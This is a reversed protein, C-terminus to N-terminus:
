VKLDAALAALADDWGLVDAHYRRFGPFWPSEEAQPGFWRWEPPHIVLTRATRGMAQLVYMDTNSVGIYDTLTSLREALALMEASPLKDRKYVTFDSHGIGDAFAELEDAGPNRQMVVPHMDVDRLARGLEFPPCQKSMGGRHVLERDGARWTVGVAYPERVTYEYGPLQLPPPFWTGDHGTLLPLDAIPVAVANERPAQCFSADTLTCPLGMKALLPYAKLGPAYWVDAPGLDLLRPLFRLFFLEDGIGQELALLVTKGRVDPLPEGLFPKGTLPNHVTAVKLHAARRHHYLRWAETYRGKRLYSFALNNLAYLFEPHDRIVGEYLAIAEDERGLQKMCTALNNRVHPNAADLKHARRLIVAARTYDQDLMAAFGEANLLDAAGAQAPDALAIPTM